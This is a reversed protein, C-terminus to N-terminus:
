ETKQSGPVSRMPVTTPMRVTSPMCGASLSVRSTRSARAPQMVVALPVVAQPSAAMARVRSSCSRAGRSSCKKVADFLDGIEGNGGDSVQESTLSAVPLAKAANRAQWLTDAIAAAPWTKCPFHRPISSCTIARMDHLLRCLFLSKFLLGPEEGPPLLSLMRELFLTPKVDGIPPMNDLRSFGEWIDLKYLQLLHTKLALYPDPPKDRECDLAPLLLNFHTLSDTVAYQSFSAEALDFCGNIDNTWVLTLKM